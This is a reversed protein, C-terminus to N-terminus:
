NRDQQADILSRLLVQQAQVAEEMEQILDDYKSALDEAEIVIQNTESDFSWYGWRTELFLLQQRQLQLILTELRRIEMAEVLRMAIFASALFKGAYDDPVGRQLMKTHLTEPAAELADSVAGSCKLAADILDIRATIVTADTITSVENGGASGFAEVAKQYQAALEILENNFEVMIQGTIKEIGSKSNVFESLATNAEHVADVDPIIVGTENFQKERDAHINHVIEHVRAEARSNRSEILGNVLTGFALISSLVLVVSRGITRSRRSVRYFCWGIGWLIMALLASTGLTGVVFGALYAMQLDANANVKRRITMGAILAVSILLLTRAFTGLTFTAPPLNNPSATPETM